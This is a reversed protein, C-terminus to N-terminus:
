PYRPTSSLHMVPDFLITDTNVMDFIQTVTLDLHVHVTSSANLVPRVAREYSWLMKAMLRQEAPIWRDTVNAHKDEAEDSDAYERDTNDEEDDFEDVDEEVVGSSHEIEGSNNYRHFTESPGNAFLTDDQKIDTNVSRTEFEDVFYEESNISTADDDHLERGDASGDDPEISQYHREVSDTKDELLKRRYTRGNTKYRGSDDSDM